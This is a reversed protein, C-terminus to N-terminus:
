RKFRYWVTRYTVSKLKAYESLKIDKMKKIKM